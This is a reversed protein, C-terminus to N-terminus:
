TAQGLRVVHLSIKEARDSTEVNKLYMNNHKPRQISVQQPTVAILKGAGRHVGAPKIRTETTPFQFEM